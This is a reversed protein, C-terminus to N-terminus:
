ILRASYPGTINRTFISIYNRTGYIIPYQKCLQALILKEIPVEDIPNSRPLMGSASVLLLVKFIVANGQRFSITLYTASTLLRNQQFLDM